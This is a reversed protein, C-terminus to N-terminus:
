SAKTRFTPAVDDNDLTKGITEFKPDIWENHEEYIEDHLEEAIQKKEGFSLRNGDSEPVEWGDTGVDNRLEELGEPVEYDRTMIPPPARGIETGFLMNLLALVLKFLQEHVMAEYREKGTQLTQDFGLGAFYHPGQRYIRVSLKTKKIVVIQRRNLQQYADVRILLGDQSPPLGLAENHKLPNYHIGERGVLNQWTLRKAMVKSGSIWVDSGRACYSIGEPQGELNKRIKIDVGSAKLKRVMEGMDRPKGDAWTKKVLARIVAAWDKKPGELQNRLVTERDGGLYKFEGKKIEVGWSDEPNAVIQLGYKIELRRMAKMGKEYDNSDDVLPGGHAMKVRTTLVHCHQKSTDNHIFGCYKTTEDYGLARMYETLVDQWQDPTLTEGPALSVIYHGFLKEGKGNHFSAAAEFEDNLDTWDYALPKHKKRKRKKSQSGNASTEDETETSNSGNASLNDRTAIREDVKGIIDDLDVFVEPMKEGKKLLVPESLMTGPIFEVGEVKHEHSGGLAYSLRPAATEGFSKKKHIM